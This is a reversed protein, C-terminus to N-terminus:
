PIKKECSMEDLLCMLASRNMFHINIQLAKENFLRKMQFPQKTAYTNQQFCKVLVVKIRARISVMFMVMFRVKGM